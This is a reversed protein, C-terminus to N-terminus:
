TRGHSGNGVPVVVHGTGFFLPGAHDTRVRGETASRRVGNAQAIWRRGASPTDADADEKIYRAPMAAVRRVTEGSESLIVLVIPKWKDGIVELLRRSAYNEDYITLKDNM